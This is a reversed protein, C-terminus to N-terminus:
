PTEKEIAAVLNAFRQAREREIPRPSNVRAPRHWLLYFQFDSPQRGATATFRGVRRQMIAAACQYATLPNSLDATTLKFGNERLVSPSIQFRSREGAAGLAMDNGGSEVTWLAQFRAPVPSRPNHITGASGGQYPSDSYGSNEARSLTIAALTIIFLVGLMILKQKM